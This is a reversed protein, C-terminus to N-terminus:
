HIDDYRQNIVLHRKVLNPHQRPPYDVHPPQTGLSLFIFWIFMRSGFAVKNGNSDSFEM